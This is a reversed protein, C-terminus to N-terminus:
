KDVKAIVMTVVPDGAFELDAGKASAFAREVMLIADREAAAVVQGATEENSWGQHFKVRLRVEVQATVAFRNPKPTSSVHEGDLTLM